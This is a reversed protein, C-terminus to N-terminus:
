KAIFELHWHTSQKWIKFKAGCSECSKQHQTFNNDEPIVLQNWKGCDCTFEFKGKPIEGPIRYIAM